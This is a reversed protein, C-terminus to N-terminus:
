GTGCGEKLDDQRRSQRHDEDPQPERQRERDCESDDGLHDAIRFSETEANHRRLLGHLRGRREGIQQYDFDKAPAQVGNEGKLRAMKNRAHASTM